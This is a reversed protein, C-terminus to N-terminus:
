DDYEEDDDEHMRSSYPNWCVTDACRCTQICRQAKSTCGCSKRKCGGKCNCSMLELSASSLCSKTTVLPKLQGNLVDIHWGHDIVAPLDPKPLTSKM